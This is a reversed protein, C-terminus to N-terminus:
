STIYRELDEILHEQDTIVANVVDGISILGILLGEDDLVPLHRIRKKTMMAMCEAMTKTPHVTHVKKTMIDSVLIDRPGKDATIMERAFDRESIIGVLAGEETVVLAGVQRQEMMELAAHVSAGPGISFVERGKGHLVSDVTRQV